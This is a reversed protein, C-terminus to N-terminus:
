FLKGDKSHKVILQRFMEILGRCLLYISEINLNTEATRDFLLNLKSAFGDEAQWYNILVPLKPLPYIVFSQNANVVGQLSKAGFLHLIEFLLDEHSDALKKLEFECRHSFFRSWESAGKLQAFTVWNGEPQLGKSHLIYNLVPIHVWPTKHCESIMDGTTTVMFDKGLCNLTIQGSKCPADIKEATRSLDINAIKEQLQKLIREQENERSSKEVASGPIKEKQTESLHPCDDISKQNQIVAVAFALCSPLMCQKCNSKNLYEYLELPNKSASM